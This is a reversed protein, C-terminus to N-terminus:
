SVSDRVRPTLDFVQSAVIAIEKVLISKTVFCLVGTLV